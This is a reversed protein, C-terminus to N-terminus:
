FFLFCSPIFTFPNTKWKWPSFSNVYSAPYRNLVENLEASGIFVRQVVHEKREKLVWVRPKREPEPKWKWVGCLGWSGVQAVWVCCVPKGPVHTPLRCWFCYSSHRQFQWLPPFVVVFSQMQKRKWKTQFECIVSLHVSVFWSGKGRPM